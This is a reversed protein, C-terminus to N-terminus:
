GASSPNLVLREANPVDLEVIWLDSDRASRRQVYENFEPKNDDDQVKTQTWKRSGDLQPMREFLRTNTGNQTTVVLITGADPDGKALVAAFGGASQVLRIMADIELKPPLRPDM